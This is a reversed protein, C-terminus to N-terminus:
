EALLREIENRLDARVFPKHVFADAFLDAAIENAQPVASCVLLRPKRPFARLRAAVSPGSVNPLLLDLVLVDPM